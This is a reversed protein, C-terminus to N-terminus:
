ARLRKAIDKAYDALYGNCFNFEETGPGTSNRVCMEVDSVPLYDRLLEYIFAVLKDDSYVNGSRIKLQNAEDKLWEERSM